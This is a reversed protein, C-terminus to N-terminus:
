QRESIRTGYVTKRSDFLQMQICTNSLLSKDLVIWDSFVFAIRKFRGDISLSKLNGLMKGDCCVLGYIKNNGHVAGEKYKWVNLDMSM